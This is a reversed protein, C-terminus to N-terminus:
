VVSKRDLVEFQILPYYLRNYRQNASKEELTDYIVFYFGKINYKDCEAYARRSLIYYSGVYALLPPLLAVLIM